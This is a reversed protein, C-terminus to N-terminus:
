SHGGAVIRLIKINLIVFQAAQWIINRRVHLTSKTPVPPYAENYYGRVINKAM